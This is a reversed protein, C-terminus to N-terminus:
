HLSNVFEYCPRKSSPRTSIAHKMTPLLLLFDIPLVRGTVLFYTSHCDVYGNGNAMTVAMEAEHSLIQGHPCRCCRRQSWLTDILGLAQLIDHDYRPHTVSDTAPFRGNGNFFWRAATWKM